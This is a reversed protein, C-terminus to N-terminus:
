KSILRRMQDREAPEFCGPEFWVALIQAEPFCRQARRVKRYEFPEKVRFVGPEIEVEDGEDDPNIWVVVENEISEGFLPLCRQVFSSGLPPLTHSTQPSVYNSRNFSNLAEAEARLERRRRIWDAEYAFFAGCAAVLLLLRGLSFRFWRRKATFAEM